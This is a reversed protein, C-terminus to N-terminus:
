WACGVPRAKAGPALMGIGPVEEYLPVIVPPPWGQLDQPWVVDFKHFSFTLRVYSLGQPLCRSILFVAPRISEARCKATM